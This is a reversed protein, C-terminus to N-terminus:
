NEALNKQYLHSEGGSIPDPDGRFRNDLSEFVVVQGDLSIAANNLVGIQLSPQAMLCPMLGCYKGRKFIKEISRAQLIHM